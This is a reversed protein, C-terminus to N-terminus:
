ILRALDDPLPASIKVAGSALSVLDIESLHFWFRGVGMSAAPAGYLEDGVIPFGASALHARIQHRV